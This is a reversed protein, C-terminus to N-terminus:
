PVPLFWTEDMLLNRHTKIRNFEVLGSIRRIVVNASDWLAFDMLEGATLHRLQQDHAEKAKSRPSVHLHDEREDDEEKQWNSM